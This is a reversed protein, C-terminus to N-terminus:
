KRKCLTTNGSWQGNQQCQRIKSGFLVLDPHCYFRAVSGILNNKIFVTGNEITPVECYNDIYM